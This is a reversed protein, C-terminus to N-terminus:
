GSMVRDPLVFPLVAMRGRANGDRFTVDDPRAIIIRPEDTDQITAILRTLNGADAQEIVGRPLVLTLGSSYFFPELPQAPDHLEGRAARALWERIRRICESPSWTLKAEQWPRDDVCLCRPTGEPVSNQHPTFPFDERLAFISLFRDDPQVAVAIQERKKIDFKRDQPRDVDVEVVVIEAMKATKRAEIFHAGYNLGHSTAFAALKAARWLKLDEVPCATSISYLWTPM